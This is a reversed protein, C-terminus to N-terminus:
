VQVTCLSIIYVLLICRQKIKWLIKCTCTEIGLAWRWFSPQLVHLYPITHYVRTWWLIIRCRYFCDQIYFPTNPANHQDVNYSPILGQSEM